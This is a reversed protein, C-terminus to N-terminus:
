LEETFEDDFFDDEDDSECLGSMSENFSVISWLTESLPHNKNLFNYIRNIFDIENKEFVNDLDFGSEDACKLAQIQSIIVPVIKAMEEDHPLGNVPEENRNFCDSVMSTYILMNKIQNNGSGYYYVFMLDDFVDLFKKLINEGKHTWKAKVSSIIELQKSAVACSTLDVPKPFSAIAYKYNLYANILYYSDLNYYRATKKGALFDECQAIIETLENDSIEINENEINESCYLTDPIGINYGMTKLESNRFKKLMKEYHANLIKLNPNHEASAYDKEIEVLKGKFLFTKKVLEELLIEKGNFRKFPKSLFNEIFDTAYNTFSEAVQFLSLSNDISKITDGAIDSLKFSIKEEYEAIIGTNSLIYDFAGLFDQNYEKNSQKFENWAINIIASVIMEVPLMYNISPLNAVMRSELDNQWDFCLNEIYLLTANIAHLNLDFQNSFYIVYIWQYNLVRWDNVPGSVTQELDITKSILGQTKGESIKKLYNLWIIETIDNKLMDQHCFIEAKDSCTKSLSHKMYQKFLNNLHSIASKDRKVEALDLYEVTDWNKIAEIKHM